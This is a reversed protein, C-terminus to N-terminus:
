RFRGRKVRDALKFTPELGILALAETGNDASAEGAISGLVRCDADDTM